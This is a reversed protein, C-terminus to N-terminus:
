NRSIAYLHRRIDKLENDTVGPRLMGAILADRVAKNKAMQNIDAAEQSKFYLDVTQEYMKLVAPIAKIIALIAAASM